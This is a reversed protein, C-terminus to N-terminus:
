LERPQHSLASQQTNKRWHWWVGFVVMEIFAVSMFMIASTGLFISRSALHDSDIWAKVLAIVGALALM